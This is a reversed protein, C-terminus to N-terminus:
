IYAAFQESCHMHRHECASKLCNYRTQLARQAPKPVRGGVRARQREQVAVVRGPAEVHAELRQRGAKACAQEAYREHRDVGALGDQLSARPGEARM